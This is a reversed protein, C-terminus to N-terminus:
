TTPILEFHDKQLEIWKDGKRKYAWSFNVKPSHFVVHMPTVKTIHGEDVCKNGEMVKAKDGVQFKHPERIRAAM